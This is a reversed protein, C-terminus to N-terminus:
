ENQNLDDVTITMQYATYNGEFDQSKSVIRTTININSTTLIAGGGGVNAEGIVTLNNLIAM